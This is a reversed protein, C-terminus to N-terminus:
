IISLMFVMDEENKFMYNVTRTRDDMYQIIETSRLYGHPTDYTGPKTHTLFYLYKIREDEDDDFKPVLRDRVIENLDYAGMYYFGDNLSYYPIRFGYKFGVKYAAFRNDMKLIDIKM